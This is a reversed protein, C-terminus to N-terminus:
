LHDVVNMRQHLIRVIFPGTKRPIYYVLHARYEFCRLMPAFEEASRGLNPNTKLDTFCAEIGDRYRRAQEVGFARLTYRAIGLLDQAAKRSLEYDAMCPKPKPGYILWRSIAAAM